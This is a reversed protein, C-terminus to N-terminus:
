TPVDILNKDIKARLSKIADKVQKHLRQVEKTRSSTGKTNDLYNGIETELKKLALVKVDASFSDGRVEDFAALASDVVLVRKRDGKFFGSSVKIFDNKRWINEEFPILNIKLGEKIDSITEEKDQLPESSKIWEFEKDKSKEFGGLSRKAM